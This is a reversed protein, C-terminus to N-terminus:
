HREGEMRQAFAHVFEVQSPTQLAGPRALRVAEIAEEPTHRGLAALVCAAVTGSRGLGARCHLVTNNGEGLNRIIKQVLDGFREAEAERPVDVDRIPFREIKVGQLLSSRSLEPVGFAHYEHDQMLSVLLRTDYVEKLRLLDARLNRDWSRGDLEPDKLGPCMCLGLHGPLPLDERRLFDVHLPHSSSTYPKGSENQKREM